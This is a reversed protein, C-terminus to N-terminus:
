ISLAITDGSILNAVDSVAPRFLESQIYRNVISNHVLVIKEKSSRFRSSLLHHVTRIPMDINDVNFLLLDFNRHPEIGKVLDLEMFHDLFDFEYDGSVLMYPFSKQDLFVAVIPVNICCVGSYNNNKIEVLFAELFASTIKL